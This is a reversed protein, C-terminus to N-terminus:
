HIIVDVFMITESGGRVICNRSIVGLLVRGGSVGGLGWCNMERKLDDGRVLNMQQLDGTLHGNVGPLTM